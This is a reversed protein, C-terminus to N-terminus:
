LQNINYLLSDRLGHRQTLVTPDKNLEFKCYQSFTNAAKHLEEMKVKKNCEFMEYQMFVPSFSVFRVWDQSFLNNGGLVFVRHHCLVSEVISILQRLIIDSIRAM